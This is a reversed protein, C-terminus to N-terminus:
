FHYFADTLYEIVFSNGEKHISIVDFRVELDLNKACVYEDIAKTLLKIKKLNVSEIPLGVEISTRTKVEVIALINNMKCIIDVEAKQFRWNTELIEYGNELLYEAAMKEGLKGLENHAAM